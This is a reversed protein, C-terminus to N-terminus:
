CIINLYIVLIMYFTSFIYINLYERERFAQPQPESVAVTLFQPCEHISIPFIRINLFFGFCGYNGMILKYSLEGKVTM